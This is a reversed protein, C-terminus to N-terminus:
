HGQIIGIVRTSGAPIDVFVKNGKVRVPASEVRETATFAERIGLGDLDMSVDCKVDRTGSNRVTFFLQGWKGFREIRVNESSVRAFTVPEWGASSIMKILPIYKKFFPRGNEIKKMDQWYPDSSADVSFFSPFFGYALMKEFYIEYGTFPAETFTKDNLGENLLFVIPKQFSIARKFDLAETNHADSSYWSLEAGFLDLNTAAFPNWGHGNGMALKGQLHMEDSIKKMFEFESAFNWIAPKGVSGSFTLPYDTYAFHDGRYNLDHRWNWEMSDFYIGDVDMELAPNIEDKLIYQYKNFGPIDPDCNTTISVAWGTHFWPTELRRAQWLGNKDRTASIDLFSRHERTILGGAVLEDYGMTKTRVPIQVDWPETYQFSLVGTGRDSIINPIREGNKMDRSGWATEHFAISFDNWGPISRLPTFPLWIGENVVRKKFAEPFISYYKKLAARMGWGPDFDFRCLRFFARNPFRTTLPSTALDFEAILGSSPDAGLRYIVPLSMDIGMGEGKNDISVACIPYFSMSGKGVPDGYGGETLNTGNFAGDPPLVTEIGITDFVVEGEHLQVSRDLGRFWLWKSGNMPIIIRLTACSPEDSLHKLEGSIETYAGRDIEHIEVQYSRDVYSTIRINGSISVDSLPIEVTESHPTVNIYEVRVSPRSFTDASNEYDRIGQKANFGSSGSLCCFWILVTIQRKIYKM